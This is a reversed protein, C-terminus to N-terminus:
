SRIAWFEMQLDPFEGGVHLAFGGAQALGEWYASSRDLEFYTYGAHYPIQRPSVPLVRLGIGPLQNNVLDRIKEPPGIKTKAPFTRMLTETDLSASVALVFVASKLLTRDAVAALFIGYQKKQLAISVATQELVMSLSQRLMNFVNGFTVQLDNHDYEPFSRLRKEPTTFTALEGALSVAARYFEVPHLGVIEAFHNMLPVARNVAILLLFDAIEAAGGQGSQSVRAALAEARVNLMGLLEEIYGQVVPSAKCDLLPPVFGSDLIVQSNSRKEVVKVCGMQVYEDPRESALKLSLRLKGTAIPAAINYGANSDAIEQEDQLYRAVNNVGSAADTEPLGPRTVPLSLHIVSDRLDADIELPPLLANEPVDFPTGDPMVGSAKTIVLKGLKLMEPDVVLEKFGWPCHTLVGSRAEVYREVYRAQQQFHQPRLFMGETWIVKNKWGM